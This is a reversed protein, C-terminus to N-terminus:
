PNSASSDSNFRKRWFPHPEEELPRVHSSDLGERRRAAEELGEASADEHSHPPLSDLLWVALTGRGVEPLNSIADQIEAISM